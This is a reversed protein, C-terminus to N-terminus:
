IEPGLFLAAIVHIEIPLATVRIKRDALGVHIRDPSVNNALLFMMPLYPKLFLQARQETLMLELPVLTIQPISGCGTGPQYDAFGTEWPLESSPVVKPKLACGRQPLLFPVSGWGVEWQIQVSHRCRGDRRLKGRHNKPLRTMIPWIFAQIVFKMLAWCAARSEM